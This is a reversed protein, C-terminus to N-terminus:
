NMWDDDDDSDGFLPPPPKPKLSEEDEEQSPSPTEKKKRSPPVADFFDGDSDSDDGFLGRRVLIGLRVLKMRYLGSLTLCKLIFKVKKLNVYSCFFLSNFM